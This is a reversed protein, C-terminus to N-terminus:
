IKQRIERVMILLLICCILVDTIVTLERYTGRSMGINIKDANTKTSKSPAPEVTAVSNRLQIEITSQSCELNSEIKQFTILIYHM